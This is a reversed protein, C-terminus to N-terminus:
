ALVKIPGSGLDRLLSQLMRRTEHDAEDVRDLMVGIKMLCEALSECRTGVIEQAARELKAWTINQAEEFEDPALLGKLACYQACKQAMSSPPDTASYTAM